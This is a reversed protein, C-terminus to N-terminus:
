EERKKGNAYVILMESYKFKESFDTYVSYISIFFLEYQEFSSISKLTRQKM